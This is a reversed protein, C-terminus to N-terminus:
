RYNIISKLILWGQEKSERFFFVGFTALTYSILTAIAAGNIGIKPILIINLIINVIAGILTNYFSIRTLNKALLYQNVAVGLFVAIGAWVYIQLTFVAGIYAQGFLIKIILHSFLTILSAIGASLWFMLFYLKSMRKEFLEKQTNFARIISPSLSTCILMPIFYWVESLKAAVAYIGAQENGLMNKIMVQDMKMYIGIAVTSLMLPWSDKLM